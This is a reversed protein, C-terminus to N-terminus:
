ERDLIAELERLAADADDSCVRADCFDSLARQREATELRVSLELASHSLAQYRRRLEEPSPEVYVCLAEPMNKKLRAARELIEAKKQAKPKDMLALILLAIMLVAGLALAITYWRTKNKRKKM